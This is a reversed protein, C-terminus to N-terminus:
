RPRPRTLSEPEYAVTRDRGERKAVYLAGDAARFLDDRNGGVDASSAVGCSATLPVPDSSFESEITNRIREAVYTARERETDPLIVGFEEGGLRTVSDISRVARVIAEAVRRLAVDGEDHGLEDNVAKFRDLDCVVLSVSRGHREARELELKFRTNFDRRNGIATVPDTHAEAAFGSAIGEVRALLLGVIMGTTGLTAISVILLDVAFPADVAFLVSGYVLAAFLAQFVAARRSFFLFALFVIWVFLLGFVGEAGDAASATAAGVMVTGLVVLAQFFWSPLQRYVIFCLVGLLLAAISLTAQAFENDNADGVILMFLGLTGGVFYLSGFTRAILGSDQSILTQPQIGERWTFREILPPDAILGRLGRPRIDVEDDPDPPSM